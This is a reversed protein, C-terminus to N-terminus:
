TKKTYLSFDAQLIVQEANIDTVDFRRLLDAKRDIRRRLIYMRSVDNKKSAFYYDRLERNWFTEPLELVQEQTLLQPNFATRHLAECDAYFRLNAAKFWLFSVLCFLTLLLQAGVVGLCVWLIPTLQKMVILVSFFLVAGWLTYLAGKKFFHWFVAAEEPRKKTGQKWQELLVPSAHEYSVLQERAWEKWSTARMTRGKNFILSLNRLV